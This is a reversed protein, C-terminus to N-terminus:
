RLSLVTKTLILGILFWRTLGVKKVRYWATLRKMLSYQIQKRWTRFRTPLRDLNTDTKSLKRSDTYTTAQVRPRKSQQAIKLHEEQRQSLYNRAQKQTMFITLCRRHTKLSCKVENVDRAVVRVWGKLFTQISQAVRLVGKVIVKDSVNNARCRLNSPANQTLALQTFILRGRMEENQMKTFHILNGKNVREQTWVQTVHTLLALDAHPKSQSSPMERGWWTRAIRLCMHSTHFNLNHLSRRKVVNTILKKRQSNGTTLWYIKLKSQVFKTMKM